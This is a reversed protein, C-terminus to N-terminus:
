QDEQAVEKNKPYAVNVIFKGDLLLYFGLVPKILYFILSHPVVKGFNASPVLLVYIASVLPSISFIITVLGIIKVWFLFSDKNTKLDISQVNEISGSKFLSASLKDSFRILIFSILLALLYSSISLWQFSDPESHIFLYPIQPLFYFFIAFGFVKILVDAFDIKNM